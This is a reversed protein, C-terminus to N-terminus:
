TGVGVVLPEVVVEVVERPVFAVLLVTGVVRTWEAKRDVMEVM